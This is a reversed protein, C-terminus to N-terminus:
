RHTLKNIRTAENGLAVNNAETCTQPCPPSDPQLARPNFDGITACEGGYTSRATMTRLESAAVGCGAGKSSVM